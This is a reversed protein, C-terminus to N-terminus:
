YNRYRHLMWVVQFALAVSFALATVLVGTIGRGYLTRRGVRRITWVGVVVGCITAPPSLLSLIVSWTFISTLVRDGTTEVAWSGGPYLIEPILTGLGGFIVPLCGLLAAGGMITDRWSVAQTPQDSDREATDGV